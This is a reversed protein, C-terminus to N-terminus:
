ADIATPRSPDRIWESWSGAYLRAGYLGAVEMALLLHCATVGSGCMAVAKAPLRGDLARTLRRGLEAAPLFRGDASLLEEFPLNVAGPIHGAVPDIPEVRGAFRDAARADILIGGPDDILAAVDATEAVRERHIARVSFRGAPWAGAGSELRGGDAVWAAFGGDLVSVKDHGVWRLMWWLRAAMSGNCQDYVVVDSDDDIGLRAATDAFEEATPLPHRGDLSSPTRALDRDLHAHRAGPIHGELFSARGAEPDLLQHRCDVIVLRPNGLNAALAAASILPRDYGPV